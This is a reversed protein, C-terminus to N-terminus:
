MKRKLKGFYSHRDHPLDTALLTNNGKPFPPGAIALRHGSTGKASAAKEGISAVWGTVGMLGGFGNRWAPIGTLWGLGMALRGSGVGLLIM